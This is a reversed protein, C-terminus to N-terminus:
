LIIIDGDDDDDDPRTLREVAYRDVPRRHKERSQCSQPRLTPVRCAHVYRDPRDVTV